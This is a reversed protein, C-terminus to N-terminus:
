LCRRRAPMGRGRQTKEGQGTAAIRVGQRPKDAAIKWFQPPPGVTAKWSPDARRGVSGVEYVIRKHPRESAQVCKLRLAAPRKRRVQALGHPVPNAVLVAACRASAHGIDQAVAKHSVACRRELVCDRALGLPAIAGRQGPEALSIPLQNDRVDLEVVAM